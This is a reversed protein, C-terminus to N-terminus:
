RRCYDARGTMETLEVRRLGPNYLQSRAGRRPNDDVVIKGGHADIISRCISLGIGIGDHKTSVFPEFLNERITAPFGPGDDGVSVEVM